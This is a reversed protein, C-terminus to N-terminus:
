TLQKMACIRTGLLPFDFVIFNDDLFSIPFVSVQEIFFAKGVANIFDKMMGGPVKDLSAYPEDFNGIRIWVKDFDVRCINEGASDYTGSVSLFGNGILPFNYKAHSEIRGQPHLIYQVDFGGGFLNGITTMHPAYLVKWNGQAVSDFTERLGPKELSKCSDSSQIVENDEMWQEVSVIMKNDIMEQVMKTREKTAENLSDVRDLSKLFKEKHNGMSALTEEQAAKLTIHSAKLSSSSIFPPAPQQQVFSTTHYRDHQQNTSDLVLGQSGWIPVFVLLVGALSAFSKM